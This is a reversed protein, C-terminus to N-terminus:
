GLAYNKPNEPAVIHSVQANPFICYNLTADRFSAADIRTPKETYDRGFGVDDLKGTFTSNSIMAQRFEVRDLRCNLFASREFKAFDIARGQMNCKEFIVDEFTNANSSDDAGFSFSKM